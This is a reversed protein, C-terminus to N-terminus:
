RSCAVYGQPTRVDAFHFITHNVVTIDRFGVAVLVRELAIWHVDSRRHNQLSQAIDQLPGPWRARGPPLADMGSMGCLAM